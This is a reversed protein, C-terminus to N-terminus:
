PYLLLLFIDLCFFTRHDSLSHKLLPRPVNNILLWLSDGSKVAASLLLESEAKESLRDLSLVFHVHWTKTQSFGLFIFIKKPEFVVFSSAAMKAWLSVVFPHWVINYHTCFTMEEFFPFLTIKLFEVSFSFRWNSFHLM